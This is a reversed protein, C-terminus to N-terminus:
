VDIRAMSLTVYGSRSNLKLESASSPEKGMSSSWGTISSDTVATLHTRAPDQNQVDVKGELTQLKFAGKYPTPLGIRLNGNAVAIKSEMKNNESRQVLNLSVNGDVMAVSMEKGVVVEGMMTGVSGGLRIWTPVDARIHSHGTIVRSDLEQVQISPRNRGHGHGNELLNVTVNGEGVAIKLRRVNTKLSPFIIKVVVRLCDPYGVGPFRTIGVTVSNDFEDQKVFRNITNVDERDAGSGEIILKTTGQVNADDQAQEVIVYGVMGSMTVRFDDLTPSLEFDTLNRTFRWRGGCLDDGSGGSGKDDDQSSHSPEQPQAFAPASAPVIPSVPPAGTSGTAYPSQQGFTRREDEPINNDARAGKRDGPFSM